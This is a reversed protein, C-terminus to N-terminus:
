MYTPISILFSAGESKTSNVLKISGGIAELIQKSLYLGHGHGKERSTTGRKFLNDRIKDDIGPGDDSIQIEINNGIRRITVDIKVSESGFVIANRFINEFVTPLLRGAEIEIDEINKESHIEITMKPNEQRFEQAIRSFLDVIKREIDEPPKSIAKLLNAMRNAVTYASHLSEKTADDREDCTVQLSEIQGFLIMLDNALDHRIISSYIELESQYQARLREAEMQTTIDLHTGSARLPKGLDDREVIRGRDLIWRYEGDKTRMRFRSEYLDNEGRAHAEWEGNVRDYDNPHILSQFFEPTQEIEEMSYGLMEAWRNNYIMRDSVLNWDWLGLDAGKLALDLRRESERLAAENFKENTIDTVVGIAGIIKGETNQRPTASVRVIRVSGNKHYIETEYVSSKGTARRRTQEIVRKIQDEGMFDKLNSGILEAANYGIIDAFAQNALEVTEDLNVLTIGAPLAMLADRIDAYEDQGEPNM